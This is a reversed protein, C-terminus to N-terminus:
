SQDKIVGVWARYQFCAPTIGDSYVNRVKDAGFTGGDVPMTDALKVGCLHIPHITNGLAGDSLVIGKCVLKQGLLVAMSPVVAMVLRLIRIPDHSTKDNMSRATCVIIFCKERGQDIVPDM